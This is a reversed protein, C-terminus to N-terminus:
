RQALTNPSVTVRYGPRGPLQTLPRAVARQVNGIEPEDGRAEGLSAGVRAHHCMLIEHVRGIGLHDVVAEELPLDVAHRLGVAVDRLYETGVFLMARRVAGDLPTADVGHLEVPVPRAPPDGRGDPEVLIRRM